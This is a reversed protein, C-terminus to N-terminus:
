SGMGRRWQRRLARVRTRRESAPAELVELIEIRDRSMRLLAAWQLSDARVRAAREESVVREIAPVVMTRTVIGGLSNGLMIVTLVAGAVIGVRKAFGVGNQPM